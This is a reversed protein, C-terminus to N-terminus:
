EPFAVDFPMKAIMQAATPNAKVLAIMQEKSITAKVFFVSKTGMRTDACSGVIALITFGCFQLFQTEGKKLAYPPDSYPLAEPNFPLNRFGSNLTEHFGDRLSFFYHGPRTLNTGFYNLEM